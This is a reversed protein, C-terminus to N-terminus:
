KVFVLLIIVGEKSSIGDMNFLLQNLTQEGEGTAGDFAILEGSARMHGIAVIEDIYVIWPARMRAEEFSYRHIFVM